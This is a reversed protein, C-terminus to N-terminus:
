LGARRPGACVARAAPSAAAARLVLESALRGGARSANALERGSRAARRRGRRRRGCARKGRGPSAGPSARRTAASPGRRPSRSASAFRRRCGGLWRGPRPETGRGAGWARDKRGRCDGCNGPASFDAEDGGGETVSALVWSTTCQPWDGSSYTAGAARSRNRTRRTEPCAQGEPTHERSGHTRGPGSSRGLRLHPAATSAPVATNEATGGCCCPGAGGPPGGRRCRARPLRPSGLLQALTCPSGVEASLLAERPTSKGSSRM